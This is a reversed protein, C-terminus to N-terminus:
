ERGKKRFSFFVFSVIRCLNAIMAPRLDRRGGESFRESDERSVDGVFRPEGEGSGSVSSSRLEFSYLWLRGSLTAKGVPGYQIFRGESDCTNDFVAPAGNVSVAKM